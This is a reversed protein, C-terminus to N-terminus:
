HKRTNIVPNELVSLSWPIWQSNCKMEKLSKNRPQQTKKKILIDKSVLKRWWVKNGRLTCLTLLSVTSQNSRRSWRYTCRTDNSASLDTLDPDSQYVSVCHQAHRHQLTWGAVDDLRQGDLLGGPLGPPLSLHLSVLRHGVVADVAHAHVSHFVDKSGQVVELLVDLSHLEGHTGLVVRGPGAVVQM